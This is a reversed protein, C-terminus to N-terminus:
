WTIAKRGNEISVSGQKFEIFKQDQFKEPWSSESRWKWIGINGMEGDFEVVKNKTSTKNKNGLVTLYQQNEIM